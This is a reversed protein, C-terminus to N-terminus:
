YQNPDKPGTSSSTGLPCHRVYKIGLPPKGAFSYYTFIIIASIYALLLIIFIAFNGPAHKRFEKIFLANNVANKELFFDYFVFISLSIAGVALLSFGIYEETTKETTDFFFYGATGLFVMLILILLASFFRYGGISPKKESESLNLKKKNVETM